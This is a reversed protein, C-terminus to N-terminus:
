EHEGSIKMEARLLKALERREADTLSEIAADTVAPGPQLGAEAATDAPMMPAVAAIMDWMANDEAVTAAITTPGGADLVASDVVLPQSTGAPRLRVAVAIVGIAGAALTWTQWRRTWGIVPAREADVSESVRASLFDWFLPSPEPVVSAVTVDDMLLRMAALEEACTDCAALHAQLAATLPRELADVFQEPTLHATM